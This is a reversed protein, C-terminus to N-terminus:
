KISLDTSLEKGQKMEPILSSLRIVMGSITILQDIDEPNLQRMNKTKDVNFTRIQIPQDLQNSPFLNVFLENTAMDFM